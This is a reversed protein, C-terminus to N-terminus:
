VLCGLSTEKSNIFELEFFINELKLNDFRCKLVIM